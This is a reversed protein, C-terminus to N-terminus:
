VEPPETVAALIFAPIAGANRTVCTKASDYYLYGQPCHSFVLARQDLCYVFAQSVRRGPPISQIGDPVRRCSPIQSYCDRCSRYRTGPCYSLYECQHLPKKSLGCGSGRLVALFSDCHGTHRNFLSPFRCESLYPTGLLGPQAGSCNYYRACHRPDAVVAEPYRWCFTVTHSAVSEAIQDYNRGCQNSVPDFLSNVCRVVAMTRQRHCKIFWPTLLRTPFPRHGDSQGRCNPYREECPACGSQSKAPCKRLAAYECPFKPEHRAGCQVHQFHLCRGDSVLNPYSCEGEVPAAGPQQCAIYRGCHLPHSHRTNPYSTCFHRTTNMTLQSTCRRYRPDLFQGSPCSHLGTVRGRYCTIYAASLQRPLAVRGNRRGWCSPFRERCPICSKGPQAHPCHNARYHCAQQPSPRGQCQVMHRPTCLGTAADYLQGIPCESVYRGLPSRPNSCNYYQASNDGKPSSFGPDKICTINVYTTPTTTTTTPPRTTTTTTTTSTTMPVPRKHDCKKTVKNFARQCRGLVMRNDMCRYYLSRDFSFGNVAGNRGICTPFATPCYPCPTVPCFTFSDSQSITDVCKREMIDFILGGPCSMLAVVRQDRCEMYTSTMEQNIVPYFGNLKGYCSPMVLECSKCNAIACKYGQYDCPSIPERRDGCLVQDHPKCQVTAADVLFPYKCESLYKPFNPKATLRTCDYLLSCESPHALKGEPNKSCFLNLTQISIEPSCTRIQPDFVLGTSCNRIDVTRSAHCLIHYPTLVYGPYANYGDPLGLCSAQCPICQDRGQCHGVMYDCPQIPEKRFGCTVLQFSACAMTSVDFLMPYPCESQKARLRSHWTVQSCNFHRACHYPDPFVATPYVDCFASVSGDRIGLNCQRLTPDFIQGARDCKTHRTVQGRHCTVYHPSFPRMVDAYDGDSLGHCQSAPTCGARYDCANSPVPRSGCFSGASGGDDGPRDRCTLSDQDFLQPYPCEVEYPKLGGRTSALGPICRYSLACSEPHSFALSPFDKCYM